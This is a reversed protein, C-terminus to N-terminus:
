FGMEEGGDYNGGGNRSRSRKKQENFRYTFTARIQRQRYQFESYRYSFEDFTTTSIRKRSNLLDSVNLSITANDKLVDKSFALNIGLRGDTQTQFNESPGRYDVTTQWDIGYPLNVRSNVRAFWSDNDYDPVEGNGDRASKFFNLSTTLRWIKFPNYNFSLEWGLRQESAINRPTTIAIGDEYEVIYDFVDTAYNYYVSTNFTFKNFKHLYGVDVGNSISPDLDPNGKFINTESVRSPFPNLFRGRPRRIRRNYGLTLSSEDNLEYALNATPFLNTYKKEDKLNTDPLESESQVEVDINTNELRLGFLASFKGWKTGYQSYVANVNEDYIFLNSLDPNFIFDGDDDMEELINDSENNNVTIRVGAEFQKSEGIPWVYDSQFLIETQDELVSTRERGLEANPFTIAEIIDALEDDQSKEHRFDITLKHDDTDFSQIFNLNFELQKDLEDELELRYGLETEIWDETYDGNDARAENDRTSYNYLASGTLSAKDTFMYELGFQTNFGRRIRKYTRDEVSYYDDVNQMDVTEFYGNGPSNSYNLGTNTFFNIKKTRWNLNGSLGYAEPTGINANVTGNFGQAKGKRLIINLIGATGEADYRASPSTIVEVKEIAEAPLQKLADNGLGVMASPRGNILIRVNENGRLSVAGEVDVTVSPVNDLVDVANGGKVTMDKGVNFIKKDLRIEVTSKEAIVEVEDLSEASPSLAITGLDTDKTIELNSLTKSEFSLFEVTINYNGSKIDLSFKGEFDTVGGSVNGGDTPTIIITAYELPQSTEAETVAGTLTIKQAFLSVSIFLLVLLNLKKLM